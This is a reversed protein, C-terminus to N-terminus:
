LDVVTRTGTDYSRAAVFLGHAPPLAALLHLAADRRHAPLNLALSVHPVWEPPPPWPDAGGLASWVRAQIERLEATLTVVRVLARGLLRAEGLEAAVPLPLAPLGALSGATIVTLHPRNTPHPHTALSPLGADRLRGWLDRVGHDLEPDLTLEVTHVDAVTSFV